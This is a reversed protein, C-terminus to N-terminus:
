LDLYVDLKGWLLDRLDLLPALYPDVKEKVKASSPPLHDFGSEPRKVEPFSGTGM